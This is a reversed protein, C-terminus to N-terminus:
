RKFVHAAGSALGLELEALKELKQALIRGASGTAAQEQDVLQHSLGAGAAQGYGAAKASRM